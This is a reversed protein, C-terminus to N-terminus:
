NTFETITLRRELANYTATDLDPFWQVPNVNSTIWIKSAVLPVSSGKIEVRVPYRDFWRLLHAIDIGGRFEDIIVHDEGQYGCWFKSRPDKCYADDGAEMWARRSKGTATPGWYVFVQRVISTPKVHDAAISRLTRYSVVRIRAPITSLDGAKASVWVCRAYVRAKGPLSVKSAFGAFVQWHLYGGNSGRELQGKVYSVKGSDALVRFRADGGEQPWTTGPITVSWFVGQSRRRRVNPAEQVSSSSDSPM